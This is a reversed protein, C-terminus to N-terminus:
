GVVHGTKWEKQFQLLFGTLPLQQCHWKSSDSFRDFQCTYDKVFLVANRPVIIAKAFQRDLPLIYGQTWPKEKRKQCNTVLFTFLFTPHGLSLFPLPSFFHLLQGFHRCTLKHALFFGKDIEIPSLPHTVGVRLALLKPSQSRVNLTGFQSLGIWNPPNSLSSGRRWGLLGIGNQSELGM